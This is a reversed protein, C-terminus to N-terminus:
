VKNAPGDAFYLETGEPNIALGMIAQPSGTELMQFHYVCTFFLLSFRLSVYPSQVLEVFHLIFVFCLYLASCALVCRVKAFSSCFTHRVLYLSCVSAVFRLLGLRFSYILVCLSGLCFVAFCRFVCRFTILFLM